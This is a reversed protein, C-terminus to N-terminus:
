QQKSLIQESVLMEIDEEGDFILVNLDENLVQIRERYKHLNRINNKVMYPDSAFIGDEGLDEGPYYLEADSEGHCFALGPYTTNLRKYGGQKGYKGYYKFHNKNWKQQSYKGGPFKGL